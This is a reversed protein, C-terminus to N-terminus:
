RMQKKREVTFWRHFKKDMKDCFPKKFHMEVWKDNLVRTRHEQRSENTDDDTEKREGILSRGVYFDRTSAEFEERTCNELNSMLDNKIRSKRWQKDVKVKMISVLGHVFQLDDKENKISKSINRRKVEDEAM